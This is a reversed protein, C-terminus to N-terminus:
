NKLIKGIRGIVSNYRIKNSMKHIPDVIYDSFRFRQYWMHIITNNLLNTTQFEECLTPEIYKFKINNEKLVWFFDYYPETNPKWILNVPKGSSGFEMNFDYNFGGKKEFPYEEIWEEKFQPIKEPRNFWTNICKKSVVMFFSNLAMPNGSRYENYGDSSGAIDYGGNEMDTILKEIEDKSTIFCDEDIHIFWDSEIEKSIELWKYWISFWGGRGDILIHKSNPFFNNICKSQTNQVDSFTSTTLFTLKM